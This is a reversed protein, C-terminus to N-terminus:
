LIAFTSPESLRCSHYHYFPCNTVPFPLYKPFCPLNLSHYLLYFAYYASNMVLFLLVYKRESIQLIRYAPQNLTICLTLSQEELNKVRSILYLFKIKTCAEFKLSIRHDTSIMILPMYEILCLNRYHDAKNLM